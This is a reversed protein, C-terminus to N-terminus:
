CKFEELFRLIPQITTYCDAIYLLPFYLFYPKLMQFFYLLHIYHDDLAQM